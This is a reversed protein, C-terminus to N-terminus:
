KSICIDDHKIACNESCKRFETNMKAFFQKSEAQVAKDKVISSILSKLVGEFASQYPKTETEM